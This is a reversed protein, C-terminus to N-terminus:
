YFPPEPTWYYCFPPGSSSHAACSSSVRFIPTLPTRLNDFFRCVDPWFEGRLGLTVTRQWVSLCPLQCSVTPISLMGSFCVRSFLAFSLHCTPDVASLLVVRLVTAPARAGQLPSSPRDLSLGVESSSGRM